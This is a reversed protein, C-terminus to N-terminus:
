EDSLQCVSDICRAIGAPACALPCDDAIACAVGSGPDGCEQSFSACSADIRAIERELLEKSSLAAEDWFHSERLSVVADCADFCDTHVAITECDVDVACGLDLQSLVNSLQASAAISREECELPGYAYTGFPTVIVDNDTDYLANYASALPRLDFQLQLSELAECPEGHADHILRLPNQVPSSESFDDYCVAYNHPACGTSHNADIFLSDGDIYAFDVAIDDSPVSPLTSCPVVPLGYEVCGTDPNPECVIKDSHCVCTECSGSPVPDNEQYQVFAYRCGSIEGTVEGTSAPESTDSANAPTTPDPPAVSTADTGSSAPAPADVTVDPSSSADLTVNTSSSADTPPTFSAAVRCAGDVCAFDSGLAVCASDAQCEVDCASTGEVDVCRASGALQRCVASSGCSQTCVGGICELGSGCDGSSCGQLFHSEGGPQQTTRAGCGITLPLAFLAAAGVRTARALPSRPTGRAELARPVHRVTLLATRLLTPANPNDNLQITAEEGTMENGKEDYPPM